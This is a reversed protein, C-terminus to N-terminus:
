KGHVTFTAYDNGNEDPNPRFVLKDADIDAKTIDAGLTAL